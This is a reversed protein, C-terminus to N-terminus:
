LCSPRMYAFALPAPIRDCADDRVVIARRQM